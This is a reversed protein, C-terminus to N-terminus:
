TIFIIFTPMTHLKIQTTLLFYTWLKRRNNQRTTNRYWYSKGMNKMIGKSANPCDHSQGLALSTIRFIPYPFPFIFWSFQIWYWNIIYQWIEVILWVVDWVKFTERRTKCNDKYLINFGPSFDVIFIYNSCRRCAISWSCRLKSDVIIRRINSIDHYGRCFLDCCFRAFVKYFLSNLMSVMSEVFSIETTVNLPMSPAEGHYLKRHITANVIGQLASSNRHMEPVVMYDTLPTLALNREVTNFNSNLPLRHYFVQLVFM